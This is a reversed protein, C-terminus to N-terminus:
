WANRQGDPRYVPVVHTPRNDDVHIRFDRRPEIREDPHPEGTNLRNMGAAALTALQETDMMGVIPLTIDNEDLCVLRGKAIFRGRTM